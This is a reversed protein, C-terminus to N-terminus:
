KSPDDEFVSVLVLPCLSLRIALKGLVVGPSSGKPCAFVIQSRLYM